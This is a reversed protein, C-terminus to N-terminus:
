RGALCAGLDLAPEGIQEPAGTTAEAGLLADVIVVGLRQAPLDCRQPPIGTEGPWIAYDSHPEDFGFHEFAQPLSPLHDGYFGLVGPSGREELGEMLIRLMEDSRRLGDLYRLLATGQPLETPDFLRAIAPDIPPGKEPWPGHNEMTIAFIFTRPGHADLMRLIDRAFDPDPYYPPVRSGGITERGLFQEFGLASMALDRRFFRRDFPHMCITRYGAQRLRWVQSAIPARALAYYPNFRDYGLESEPIGTLVAFETRMTNAGWGPVELRGSLAASACCANFGPLLASPLSPSIRRADFFSECQVLILPVAREGSSGVISPACLAARRSAREARAIVTHTVLMAFPGLREADAFPEGSPALKRLMAAAAGLLPERSMLWGAAVILVAVAVALGPQPAWVSPELVLLSLGLAAAGAAGGIVLGPGAFPLYLHPHTFVQPLESM